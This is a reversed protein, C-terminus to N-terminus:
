SVCGFIAPLLPPHGTNTCSCVESRIEHGESALGDMELVRTTEDGLSVALFCRWATIALDYCERRAAVNRGARLHSQLEVTAGVHRKGARDWV